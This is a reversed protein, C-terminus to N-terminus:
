GGVRLGNALASISALGPVIRWHLTWEVTRLYEGVRLRDALASVTRWRAGDVGRVVVVMSWAECGSGTCLM